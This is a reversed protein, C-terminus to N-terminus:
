RYLTGGLLACMEGRLKEPSVCSGPSIPPKRKAPKTGVMQCLWEERWGPTM